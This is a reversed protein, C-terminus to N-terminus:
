AYTMQGKSKEMNNIFHPYNINRTEKHTEVAKPFKFICLGYIYSNQVNFFCLCDEFVQM